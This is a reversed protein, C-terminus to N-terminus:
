KKKPQSKEAHGIAPKHGPKEILVRGKTVDRFKTGSKSVRVNDGSSNNKNGGSISDFWGM